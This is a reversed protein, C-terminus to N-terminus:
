SAFELSEVPIFKVRDGPSVLSMPSRAADFMRSSTRGIIRWGGPSASPYVGTQRGAIGVSGTPVERRPVDMRPAAIELPVEGLYAFGPSFGLFYVRYLVDAHLEVWREASLGCLAATSALDPGCEGGYVVPIEVVRPTEAGASEGSSWLGRLYTEVDAHALCRPDFRVLLSAYAPAVDRVGELPQLDARQMLELAADSAASSIERGFRVLLTHDSAAFFQPESKSLTLSKQVVM